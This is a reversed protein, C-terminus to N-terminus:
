NTIDHTNFLKKAPSPKAHNPLTQKQNIKKTMRRSFTHINSKFHMNDKTTIHCNTTIQSQTTYQLTTVDFKQKKSAEQHNEQPAVTLQASNRMGRRISKWQEYTNSFVIKMKTDILDSAEVTSM